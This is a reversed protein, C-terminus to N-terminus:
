MKLKQRVIGALYLSGCILIPTNKEELLKCLTTYIDGINLANIDIDNLENALEEGNVSKDDDISVTYIQKAIKDLNKAMTLYDKRQMVGFIINVKGIPLFDKVTKVLSLVAQTNHAGDVIVLPNKDVVELRCIWKTKKLGFLISEAALKFETYQTLVCLALFACSANEVQHYGILDTEINAKIGSYDFQFKAGSFGIADIQVNSKNTCFMPASCQKSKNLLVAYAEDYKQNSVVVPCNCKIIGAKNQAIQDITDGLINMHDYAISTIVSLIPTIVNTADYTGGIGTEVIAIDINEEKFIVFAIATLLEFFAALPFGEKQMDEAQQRVKTAVSAFIGDKVNIGSIRIRENFVLIYPSTFLGTKYGQERIASEMYACVSGKGNTGAVHISKFDDQPNGLRALLEKVVSLDNKERSQRSSTEVYKVSEKFNM